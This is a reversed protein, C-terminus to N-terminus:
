ASWRQVIIEAIREAAEGDWLPPVERRSYDSVLVRKWADLVGKASLGALQNSGIKCTIPRETNERITICPTRLVTTEEQIGGSDTLVCFANANLKLLELYGLPEIARLDPANRLREELGFSALNKKTRPHVPWLVPIKKAIVGLAGFIESLREPNDVLAPRHLTVVVYRKPTVNLDDLITSRKALPLSKLLSDIMVNGALVVSNSPFGENHLNQVADDETCFLLDSLQDILLRNIEEHMSRDFSRLGAEVHAIRIGLRAAVFASAFAGNVDGPVVIGDPRERQFVDELKVMMDATPAVGAGSCGLFFDPEPLGLERFFVGSMNDDYHQGTHVLLTQVNQRAKFAEMLPAIKMFNPRASVVCIIKM